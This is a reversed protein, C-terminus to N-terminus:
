TAVIFANWGPCNEAKKVPRFTGDGDGDEDVGEWYVVTNDFGAGQLSECVEPISWLRWDYRFANHIGGGGHFEFHIRFLAHNTVPNFRKQEWVYTFGKYRTKDTVEMQAEWGGFIDLVFIGGPRLSRRASHFYGKLREATKFVFYSFNFAVVVDVKPRHIDQVDASILSVRQAEAGLPDINHERGWELTPADLDVGVAMNDPRRRVWDASLLATGCFDEKLWRPLEGNRKKYIRDIFAMNVDTSQVSEQYLWHRDTSAPRGRRKKKSSKSMTSGM